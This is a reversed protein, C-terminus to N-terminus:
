RDSVQLHTNLIGMMARAYTHTYPPPATSVITYLEKCGISVRPSFNVLSPSLSSFSQSPFHSPLATSISSAPATFAPNSCVPFPLIHPAIILLPTATSYSSAAEFSPFFFESGILEVPNAASFAALEIASFTVVGGASLSFLPRLEPIMRYLSSSFIDCPCASIFPFITRPRTGPRLAAIFNQHNTTASIAIPNHYNALVSPHLLLDSIQSQHDISIAIDPSIGADLLFPLARDVAILSYSPDARRRAIRPIHDAASPGSAIVLAPCGRHSGFLASPPIPNPLLALNDRINDTWLKGHAAIIANNNKIIHDPIHPYFAPDQLFSLDMDPSFTDPHPFSPMHDTDFFQLTIPHNQVIQIIHTAALCTM